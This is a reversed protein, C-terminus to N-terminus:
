KEPCLGATNYDLYQHVVAVRKYAMNPRAIRDLLMYVAEKGFGIKDLGMGTVAVSRADRPDNNFSVISVDKPAILQLQGTVRQVLNAMTDNECLFATPLTGQAKEAHWKEMIKGIDALDDETLHEYLRLGNEEMCQCLGALRHAASPRLGNGCYALRKHGWDLLKKCLTTSSEIDACYVCDMPFMPFPPYTMLVAPKTSKLSSIYEVSRYGAFIIGTANELEQATLADDANRLIKIHLLYGNKTAGSEVGQVVKMWFAPDGMDSKPIMLVIYQSTAKSTTRIYGLRRCAELVRERTKESAGSKGSIARSVAYKSLHTEQAIDDLTVKKAM